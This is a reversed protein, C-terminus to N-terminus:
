SQGGILNVFAAQSTAIDEASLYRSPVEVDVPASQPESKRVEADPARRTRSAQYTELTSAAIRESMEAVHEQWRRMTWILAVVLAAIIAWSIAIGSLLVIELTIM